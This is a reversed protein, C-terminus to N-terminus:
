AYTDLLRTSEIRTVTRADADPESQLQASRPADPRSQRSFGQSVSADMLNFGQSALMERLRPISAEILARTEAQAAGFHVSAQGDRVTISVEMPGLDVPTLQLSASSEGGRVMLAIRTGFEEAWRPDRAHTTLPAHESAQGHRVGQTMWEAARNLADTPRGADAAADASGGTSTATTAALLPDAADTAAESVSDQLPASLALGLQASDGPSKGSSKGGSALADDIGQAAPATTAPSHTPVAANFLMGILALPGLALEDGEEADSDDETLLDEQLEELGGEAGATSLLDLQAANADAAITELALVSDFPPAAHEAPQTAATPTGASAAAAAPRATSIM